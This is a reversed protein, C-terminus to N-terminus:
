DNFSSTNSLPRYPPDLYFLTQGKAYDLTQQYNGTLIEVKQLLENDAYITASDCITPMTYKGFPVNFRGTKNVRYLGNFCTRNLFIFLTTNRISDLAKTNFEDRM